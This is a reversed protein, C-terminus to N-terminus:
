SPSCDGRREEAVSSIWDQDYFLDPGNRVERANHLAKSMPHPEIKEGDQAARIQELQTLFNDVQDRESFEYRKSDEGVITTSSKRIRRSLKELRRRINSM